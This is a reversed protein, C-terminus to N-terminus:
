QVARGGFRGGFAALTKRVNEIYPYSRYDWTDSRDVLDAIVRRFLQSGVCEVQEASAASKASGALLYSGRRGVSHYAKEAVTERWEIRSATKAAAAFENFSFPADVIVHLHAHDVGCAVTSGRRSAGHEFWIARDSDVGCAALVMRVVDLPEVNSGARWEAFNLARARPIVLLWNPVISGLTPAVVCDHTEFLVEDFPQRACRGRALLASFRGSETTVRPAPM